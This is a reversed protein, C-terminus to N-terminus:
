KIQKLYCFDVEKKRTLFINRSVRKLKNRVCTFKDNSKLKDKDVIITSIGLKKVCYEYKNKILNKEDYFFCKNFSHNSIFEDKLNRSYNNPLHDYYLHSVKNM